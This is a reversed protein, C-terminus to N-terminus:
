CSPPTLSARLRVVTRPSQSVYADRVAKGVDLFSELHEVDHEHEDSCRKEYTQEENAAAAAAAGLV